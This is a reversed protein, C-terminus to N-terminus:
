ILVKKRREFARLYYRGGMGGFLQARHFCVGEELAKSLINKPTGLEV